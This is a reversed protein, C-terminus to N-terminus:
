IIERSPVSFQLTVLKFRTSSHQPHVRAQRSPCSKFRENDNQAAWIENQCVQENTQDYAVLRDNLSSAGVHTMHGSRM